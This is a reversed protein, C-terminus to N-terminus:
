KKSAKQGAGGNKRTGAGKGKTATGGATRGGRSKSTKAKKVAGRPPKPKRKKKGEEEVYGEEDDSSIEDDDVGVHLTRRSEEMTLKQWCEWGFDGASLNFTQEDGQANFTLVAGSMLYVLESIPAHTFLALGHATPNNPSMNSSIGVQEYVELSLYSLGDVTEADTFSEHKGSVAGYRYIGKVKGLYIRQHTRMIVLSDLRIPTLSNIGRTKIHPVVLKGLSTHLDCGTKWEVPPGAAVWRRFRAKQFATDNRLGESQQVGEKLQHSAHNLSFKGGLYRVDTEPKRDEESHVHTGACHRERQAVLTARLIPQAGALFSPIPRLEPGIFPPDVPNLLKAISIRGSVTALTDPNDELRKEITAQHSAHAIAQAPSLSSGPLSVDEDAPQRPSPSPKIRIVDTELNAPSLNLVVQADDDEVEDDSDNDSPPRANPAQFNPHLDSVDLPLTPIQMKAFQTALAAAENWAIECARDIDARSPIDKLAAIEEPKMGSDVFDFCYGNNSDKEKKTSYQGSSLIRQRILIHRYMEIFQGFSFDAIFSRAIGFFHELFHTGHHWPMFPINPYYELHALTLLIFQDCLRMLINFSTDALFSSQKQFLDPYRREAALINYRWITFFHRARFVCVVREIHPMSLNMWADFLEGFIFTLIFLGELSPHRLDGDFGVLFSFLINTFLRRAAGDDQKDLNFVDKIYLPCGVAHRSNWSVYKLVWQESDPLWNRSETCKQQAARLAIIKRFFNPSWLPLRQSPDSPNLISQTGDLWAQSVDNELQRVSDLPPISTIAWLADEGCNPPDFSFWSMNFRSVFRQSNEAVDPLQIALFDAVAMDDMPLRKIVSVPIERAAKCAASVQRPVDKYLKDAPVFAPLAEEPESDIEMVSSFFHQLQKYM